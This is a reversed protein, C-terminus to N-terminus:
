CALESSSDKHISSIPACCLDGAHHMDSVMLEKELEAHQEVLINTNVCSIFEAWRRSDINELQAVLIARIHCRFWILSNPNCASTM